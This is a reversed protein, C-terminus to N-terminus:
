RKKILSIAANRGLANAFVVKHEWLVVGQKAGTSALLENRPKQMHEATSTALARVLGCISNMLQLLLDFVFHLLIFGSQLAPLVSDVARNCVLSM